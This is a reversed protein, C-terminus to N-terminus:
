ASSKVEVEVDPDVVEVNTLRVRNPSTLSTIAKAMNRIFEERIAPDKIKKSLAFTREANKIAQEIARQRAFEAEWRAKEQVHELTILQKLTNIVARMRSTPQIDHPLSAEVELPSSYSIRNIKLEFTGEHGFLLLSPDYRVPWDILHRAILEFAVDTVDPVDPDAVEGLSVAGIFYWLVQLNSFTNAAEFATLRPRSDLPPVFVFRVTM